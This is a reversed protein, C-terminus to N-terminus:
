SQIQDHLEVKIRIKTPKDMTKVLQKANALAQM